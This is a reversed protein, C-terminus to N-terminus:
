YISLCCQFTLVMRSKGDAAIQQMAHTFSRRVTIVVKAILLSMCSSKLINRHKKKVKRMRLWTINFKHSSTDLFVSHSVSVYIISM